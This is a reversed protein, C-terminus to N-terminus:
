KVIISSGNELKHQGAVIVQHNVNLGETIEIMNNSITGISVLIKFAKQSVTDAIFVYPMNNVDHLICETPIMCSQEPMNTQISIEATMGPRLLMNPNDIIIKIPFTRTAADALTGIEVITGSFISDLSAVYVSAKNGISINRLDSAPVFCQVKVQKIDSIAFVQIGQGIIEGVEVGKKLVIGTIPSYLKTDNVNKTQLVQQAKAAKLGNSIKIYESEAISKKEYLQSIRAYDDQMQNLNADAIEKAQEYSTPDLSALIEGAQIIDGEQVRISNIKGSVLFGLRVTINGEINGSITITKMKKHLTPYTTQVVLPKQEDHTKKHHSCSIFLLLIFFKLFKTHTNM